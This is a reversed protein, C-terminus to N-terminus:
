KKPAQSPLAQEIMEILGALEALHTKAIGIYVQAGEINGAAIAQMAALKMNSRLQQFVAEHQFGNASDRDITPYDLALHADSLHREGMWQGMQLVVSLRNDNILPM